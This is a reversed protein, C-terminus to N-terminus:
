GGGPPQETNKVPTAERPPIFDPALGLWRIPDVPQGDVIIEFHLHPGNARGTAGALGIIEGRKVWQGTQVDIQSLHAYQSFVGFGHDLVVVNGRIDLHEALVVRGDACALVPEGISRRYDTGTHRATLVGGNYIRNGGFRSTVIGGPVPSDFAWDFAPPRTRGAYVAALIDLEKQNLAPDLLPQLRYPISVQEDRYQFDIVKILATRSVSAGNSPDAADVTLTHTGPPENLSFSFVAEYGAGSWFADLGADDLKVSVLLPYSGSVYVYGAQGPVLELPAIAASLSPTVPAALVLKRSPTTLRWVALSAIILRTLLWRRLTHHDSQGM